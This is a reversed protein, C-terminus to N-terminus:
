GLSFQASLPGSLIRTLGVWMPYGTILVNKLLERHVQHNLLETTSLTALSRENAVVIDDEDHGIGGSGGGGGNREKEMMARVEADSLTEDPATALRWGFSQVNCM